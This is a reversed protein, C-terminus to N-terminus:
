TSLVSILEILNKRTVIMERYQTPFKKDYVLLKMTGHKEMWLVGALLNILPTGSVLLWDGPQSQAIAEAIQFKVRDLSQFSVYGRTIWNIAGYVEAASYDHGAYNAVFVRELKVETTQVIAEM